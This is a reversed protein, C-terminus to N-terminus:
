KTALFVTSEPHFATWAFWYGEIVEVGPPAEVEFTRARSDYSVRIPHGEFTEAVDGGAATLEPAPYARASGDAIRLGVTLTKPPYRPDVPAPFYLRSSTAYGRYPTKGYNRAHGTIESLVTTDPHRERWDGWPMQSSRLLELRTGREPGSIAESAIQSWLSETARDFLLVDSQYLLGSVGFNRVRGGVTRDFVMGTGCLPCYSVLIPRGGLTDNVLEHWDLIAIPYARSEGNSVLGIVTQDDSWPADAASVVRPHTLAPIGDRPPGGRLIEHAPISTSALDFGNLRPEASAGTALALALAASALALPSM